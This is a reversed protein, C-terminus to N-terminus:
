DSCPARRLFRGREDRGLTSPPALRFPIPRPPAPPRASLPPDFTPTWGGRGDFGEILRIAGIRNEISGRFAAWRAVDRGFPRPPQAWRGTRVTRV